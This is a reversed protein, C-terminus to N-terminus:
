LRLALQRSTQATKVCFRLRIQSRLNRSGHGPVRLTSPALKSTSRFKAMRDPHGLRPSTTMLYKRTADISHFQAAFASLFTATTSATRKRTLVLSEAYISSLVSALANSSVPLAATFSGLQKGQEGLSSYANSSVRRSQNSNLGGRKSHPAGGHRQRRAMSASLHPSHTVFRQSTITTNYLFNSLILSKRLHQNHLFAPHLRTPHRRNATLCLLFARESM